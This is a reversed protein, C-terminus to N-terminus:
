FHCKSKCSTLRSFAKAQLWIFAIGFFNANRREDVSHLPIGPTLFRSKFSRSLFQCGKLGEVTWGNDARGGRGTRSRAALENTMKAVQYSRM